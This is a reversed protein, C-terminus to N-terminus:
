SKILGIMIAGLVFVGIATWIGWSLAVVSLIILILWKYKGLGTDSKVVETETDSKYNKDDLFHELKEVIRSGAYFESENIGVYDKSNEKFLVPHVKEEIYESLKTLEDDSEPVEAEAVWIANTGYETNTIVGLSKQNYVELYKKVKDIGLKIRETNQRVYRKFDEKSVLEPHRSLLFAVLVSSSPLTLENWEVQKKLDEVLSKGLFKSRNLIDSELVIGDRVMYELPPEDYREVLKCSVKIPHTEIQYKYTETRYYVDEKARTKRTFLKQEPSVEIHFNDHTEDVWLENESDLIDIEWDRETEM